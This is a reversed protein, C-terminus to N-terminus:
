KYISHYFVSILHKFKNFSLPLQIQNKINTKNPSLVFTKKKNLRRSLFKISMQNNIRLSQDRDFKDNLSSYSLFVYVSISASVPYLSKLFIPVYVCRPCPM